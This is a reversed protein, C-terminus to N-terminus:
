KSPPKTNCASNVDTIGTWYIGKLKAWYCKASTAIVPNKSNYSPVSFNMPDCKGAVCPYRGQNRRAKNKIKLNPICKIDNDESQFGEKTNSQCTHGGSLQEHCTTGTCCNEGSGVVCPQSNPICTAKKPAVLWADPCPSVTPPWVSKHSGQVLMIVLVVIVIIFIILAASMLTRQFSM